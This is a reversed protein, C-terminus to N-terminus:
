IPQTVQDEEEDEPVQLSEKMEEYLERIIVPRMNLQYDMAKIPDLAPLNGILSDAYKTAEIELVESVNKAFSPPGVKLNMLKLLAIASKADGAEIAQELVKAAKGLLGRLRNKSDVWLDARLRTVEAEFYANKRWVSLQRRSVGVIEAIESCSHGLSLLEAANRQRVTLGQEREAAKAIIKNQSTEPVNSIHVTEGAVQTNEQSDSM